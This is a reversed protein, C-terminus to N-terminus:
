GRPRAGGAPESTRTRIAVQRVLKLGVPLAGIRLITALDRAQQVTDFGGAIQAGVRGDIGDPNEAFNIIPRTKVEDEFVVALHGSLVEAMAATVPGTAGARGRQAIARTLREFDARGEATFEFTVIPAGFEDVGQLPNVIESGGLAPRDKLAYWGPAATESVKGLSDSPQESVVVTDDAGQRSALKLANRKSPLAGAFILQSNSRRRVDRGAAKWEREARRLPGAEPERGPHGGIALERGILNPEWDYFRLQGSGGLLGM